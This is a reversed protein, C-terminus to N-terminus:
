PKGWCRARMEPTRATNDCNLRLVYEISAQGAKIEMVTAHTAATTALIQTIMRTQEQAHAEQTTTIHYTLYGALVTAPGYKGLLQLALLWKDLPGKTVQASDTGRRITGRREASDANRHSLRLETM